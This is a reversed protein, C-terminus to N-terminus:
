QCVWMIYRALVLSGNGIVIDVIVVCIDGRTCVRRELM